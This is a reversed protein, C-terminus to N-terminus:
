RRARAPICFVLRMPMSRPLLAILATTYASSPVGSADARRVTGVYRACGPWESISTLSDSSANRVVSVSSAASGFTFFSGGTAIEKLEDPLSTNGTPASPM